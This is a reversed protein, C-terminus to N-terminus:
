RRGYRMVAGGLVLVAAAIVGLGAVGWITSTRVTTRFQVSESLGGGGSRLTVMYDGAVARESPKIKVNVERTQNPAISGIQKPEFTVSWGSPPSASMEIDTAPASGGNVLSFTFNSEEGAVADGSLREQPGVMRLQPEGTVEM